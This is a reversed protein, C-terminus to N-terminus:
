ETSVTADLIKALKKKGDRMSSRIAWTIFLVIVVPSFLFLSILLTGELEDSKVRGLLYLVTISVICILLMLAILLVMYQFGIAIAPASATVKIETRGHFSTLLGYFEPTSNRGIAPPKLWFRDPEIKGYFDSSHSWGSFMTKAQTHDGLRQVIQEATLPTTLTFKESAFFLKLLFKFPSSRSKRSDPTTPEM